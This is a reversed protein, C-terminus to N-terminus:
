PERMRIPGGGATSYQKREELVALAERDDCRELIRGIRDLIKNEVEGIQPAPRAKGFLVILGGASQPKHTLSGKSVRIM